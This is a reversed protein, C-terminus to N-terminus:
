SDLLAPFKELMEHWIEAQREPSVIQSLETMDYDRSQIRHHEYLRLYVLDSTQDILKMRDSDNPETDWDITDGIMRSYWYGIDRSHFDAVSLGAMQKM